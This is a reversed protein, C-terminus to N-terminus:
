ELEKLINKLEESPNNLFDNIYQEGCRLFHRGCSTIAEAIDLNHYRSYPVSFAGYVSNLINKISIQLNKFKLTKNKDERKAARIMKKKADNRKAFFDQEMSAIVGKPVNKFIVGNPAISILKDRLLINLHEGKFTKTKNDKKIEVDNFSLNRIADIIEWEELNQIRGVYTENSMNLTIMATPYSSTIDADVVWRYQGHQPEKVIAAEFYEKKGGRMEPACINKRRLYTLM